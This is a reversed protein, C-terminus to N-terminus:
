RFKRPSDDLMVALRELSVALKTQEGAVISVRSQVPRHGKLQILVSHMGPSLEPVVLMTQGVARGDIIVSAKQPRSDVLLSGRTAPADRRERARPAPAASAREPAPPEVPATTAQPEPTPTPAVAPPPAVTPTPAPTESASAAAVPATEREARSAGWYYGGVLGLAVGAIGVATTAAWPFREIAPRGVAPIEQAHLFPRDLPAVAPQERMRDHSPEPEAIVPRRPPPTVSAVVGAQATVSTLADVFAKASDFRASPDEAMARDIAKTWTKPLEAGVSRGTIDRAIAALAYIDAKRAWEGGAAREPASYPLRVPAKAGVTELAQSVGFGTITVQGVTAGVFIDRPHLAGHSIGREWATDIIQAIAGLLRHVDALALPPSHRLYVDLADGSIYELVAFPTSRETGVDLTTALGPVGAARESVARLADALRM